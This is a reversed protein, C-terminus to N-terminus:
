LFNNEIWEPYPPMKGSEIGQELYLLIRNKPIGEDIDYRIDELTFYHVGGFFAINGNDVLGVFGIDHKRSFEKIYEEDTM